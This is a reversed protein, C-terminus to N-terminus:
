ILIIRFDHVFYARDRELIKVFHWNGWTGLIAQFVGGLMRGTIFKIKESKFFVPPRTIANVMQTQFMRILQSRYRSLRRLLPYM